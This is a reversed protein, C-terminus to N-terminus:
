LKKVERVDCVEGDILIKDWNGISDSIFRIDSSPYIYCYPIDLIAVATGYTTYLIIHHRDILQWKSVDSAYIYDAAAMSALVATALIIKRLM